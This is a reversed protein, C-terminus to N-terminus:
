EKQGGETGVENRTILIGKREEKEWKKRQLNTQGLTELHRNRDKCM